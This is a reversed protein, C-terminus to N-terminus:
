KPPILAIADAAGIVGRHAGDVAIKGLASPSNAKGNANGRQVLAVPPGLSETAAVTGSQATESQERLEGLELAAAARM